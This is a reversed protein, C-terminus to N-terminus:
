SSANEVDNSGEENGWYAAVVEVLDKLLYKKLEKISFYKTLHKQFSPNFSRLNPSLNNMILGYADCSINSEIVDNLYIIIDKQQDSLDDFVWTNELDLILPSLATVVRKGDSSWAVLNGWDADGKLEISTINNLNRVHWMRATTDSKTVVYNGDPSWIVPYAADRLEVSTTNNIDRIDGLRTVIFSGNPSWAVSNIPTTNGTLEVSTINILDRVDWICATHNAMKAVIYKGDASWAVSTVGWEQDRRGFSRAKGNLGNEQGKPLKIARSNNKDQVDWIRPAGDLSGTVVYKGDPSWAVSEIWDTHGELVVSTINNLNRIDWIRATRDYSGTVVYRGDPSLALSTVKSRHGRLEISTIENLDHVDWIRV